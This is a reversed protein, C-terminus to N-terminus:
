LGMSSPHFAISKVLKEMFEKNAEYEKRPLTISLSTENFKQNRSSPNFLQVTWSVTQLPATTPATAPAMTVLRTAPAPVTSLQRREIVKVQGINRTDIMIWEGTNSAKDKAAADELSKMSEPAFALGGSRIEIEIDSSPGPGQLWSLTPDSTERTLRWIAPVQISCDAGNIEITQYPGNMLQDVSPRDDVLPLTAPLPADTAQQTDSRDCGTFGCLLSVLAICAIRNAKSLLGPLPSNEFM